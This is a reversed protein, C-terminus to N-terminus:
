KPMNRVEAAGPNVPQPMGGQMLERHSCAGCREVLIMEEMCKGRCRGHRRPAKPLQRSCHLLLVSVARVRRPATPAHFGELLVNPVHGVAMLGEFGMWAEGQVAGEQPAAGSGCRLRVMASLLFSTLSSCGEREWGPFGLHLLPFSRMEHRSWWLNFPTFRGHHDLVGQLVVSSLGECRQVGWGPCICAPLTSACGGLAPDPTGMWAFDDGM